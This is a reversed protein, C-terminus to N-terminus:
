HERYSAWWAEPDGVHLPVGDNRAVAAEILDVCDLDIDNDLM